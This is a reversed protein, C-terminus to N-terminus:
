VGPFMGYCLLIIIICPDPAFHIKINEILISNCVKSQLHDICWYGEMLCRFNEPLAFHEAYELHKGGDGGEHVIYYLVCHKKLLDLDSELVNKVLLEYQANTRPPYVV